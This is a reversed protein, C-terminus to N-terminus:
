RYKQTKPGCRHKFKDFKPRKPLTNFHGSQASHAENKKQIQQNGHLLFDMCIQKILPLLLPIVYFHILKQFSAMYPDASVVKLHIRYPTTSFPHYKDFLNPPSTKKRDIALYNTRRKKKSVYSGRWIFAMEFDDLYSEDDQYSQDDDDLYLLLDFKSCQTNQLATTLLNQRNKSFFSYCCEELITLTHHRFRSSFLAAKSLTKEIITFIIERTYHDYLNYENNSLAIVFEAATQQVESLTAKHFEVRCQRNGIGTPKSLALDEYILLPLPFSEIGLYDRLQLIDLINNDESLENFLTYSNEVTITHLIFM